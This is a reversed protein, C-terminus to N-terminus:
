MWAVVRLIIRELDAPTPKSDFAMDRRHRTSDAMNDGGPMSQMKTPKKLLSERRWLGVRRNKGDDIWEADM